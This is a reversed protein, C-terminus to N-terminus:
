GDDEIEEPQIIWFTTEDIRRGVGFIVSTNPDKPMMRLVAVRDQVWDPAKDLTPYQKTVDSEIKVFGIYSMLIGNKTQSLRWIRDEEPDCIMHLAALGDSM